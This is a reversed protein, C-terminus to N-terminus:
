GSKLDRRADSDILEVNLGSGAYGFAILGDDFAEGPAPAALVRLGKGELVALSESVDGTRFCLHHLGEGRKLFQWLPSGEGSPEILKIDISGARALFQVNVQQRTNTVKGTRPAFGLIGCLRPLAAEISRVAICVHDIHMLHEEPETLSCSARIPAASALRTRFVSATGAHKLAHDCRTKLYYYCSGHGLGLDFATSRRDM